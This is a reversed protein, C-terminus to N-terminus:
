DDSVLRVARTAHHVLYLAHELEKVRQRLKVETLPVYDFPKRYLDLEAEYRRQIAEIRAQWDDIRLEDIEKHLRAFDKQNRRLELELDHIRLNADKRGEIAIRVLQDSRQIATEHDEKRVYETTEGKSYVTCTRLAPARVAPPCAATVHCESGCHTCREEGCFGM